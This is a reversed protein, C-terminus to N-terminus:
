VVSKRDKIMATPNTSTPLDVTPITPAFLGVQQTTQNAGVGRLDHPRDATIAILGVRGHYAELLAPYLNAAATGSTTVVAAPQVKSLGLATFAGVREDIRVHVRLRHAEQARALAYIIPANRSGPSIVVHKVGQAILADVLARARHTSPNM